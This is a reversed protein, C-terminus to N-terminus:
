VICSFCATASHITAHMELCSRWVFWIGCLCVPHANYGVWCSIIILIVILFVVCVDDDAPLTEGVREFYIEGFERFVDTLEEETTCPDLNGVFINTTLHEQGPEVYSGLKQPKYGYSTNYPDDEIPGYDQYDKERQDHASSHSTLDLPQSSQLDALMADMKSKREASKHHHRKNSSTETATIPLQSSKKADHSTSSDARTLEDQQTNSLSAIPRKKGKNLSAFADEEDSSSADDFGKIPRRKVMKPQLAM